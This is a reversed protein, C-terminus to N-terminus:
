AYDCGNQKKITVCVVVHFIPTQIGLLMGHPLGSAFRLARAAAAARGDSDFGTLGFPRERLTAVPTSRFAPRADRPTLFKQDIM